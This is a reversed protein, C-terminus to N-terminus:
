TTPPQPTGTADQGPPNSRLKWRTSQNMVSTRERCSRRWGSSLHFRLSSLVLMVMSMMRFHLGQWFFFFFFLHLSVQRVSSSFSCWLLTHTHAM